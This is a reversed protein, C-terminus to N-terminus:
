GMQQGGSRANAKFRKESHGFVGGFGSASIRSRGIASKAWAHTLAPDGCRLM